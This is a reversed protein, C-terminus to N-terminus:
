SADLARAFARANYRMLAFYSERGALGPGGLPDVVVVRANLEGSLARAATEALQPEALVAHVEHARASDVLAALSRASPEHGPREFLSGLSVLGYRDAFYTWADHTAIFDRTRVTALVARIEKDLATLSDSVARSRDRIAPAASPALEELFASLRPVVEDRMLIPDLWVHPNGTGEAEGREGRDLAHEKGRLEMGDTLVLRLLDPSDAGLDALWADLGGGVTIYGRARSLTRIQAPTAEWTHISARPPLLTEVRVADGGIRATLDAVPFISVVVLPPGEDAAPHPACAGVGVLLAFVARLAARRSM